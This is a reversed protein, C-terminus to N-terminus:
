DALIKHLVEKFQLLNVSCDESIPTPGLNIHIIQINLLAEAVHYWKESTIMILTDFDRLRTIMELMRNFFDLATQDRVMDWRQQNSLIMSYDVGFSDCVTQVEATNIIPFGIIAVRNGKRIEGVSEMRSIFSRDLQLRSAVEHQSFGQERLEMAREVMRVTKDLSIMKDGIRFIREGSMM